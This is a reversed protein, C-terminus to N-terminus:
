PKSDSESPKQKKPPALARDLLANFDIAMIAKRFEPDNASEIVKKNRLMKFYDRSAFAQNIEPDAIMATMRPSQSLQQMAPDEMLRGLAEPNATIRGVKAILEYIGPPIIDIKEVFKGPAGSELAAKISTMGREVASDASPAYKIKSSSAKKTELRSDSYAGIARFCLIFIWMILFAYICGLFAGGLGYFFRVLGSGQHATTKLLIASFIAITIYIVTGVLMSVVGAIIFDPYHLFPRLFPATLTGLFYGAAYALFLSILSVLYRAFGKRWGRILHYLLFVGAVILLFKQSM